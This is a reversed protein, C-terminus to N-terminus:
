HSKSQLDPQGAIKGSLLMGLFEDRSLGRRTKAMSRFMVELRDKNSLIRDGVEALHADTVLGLAFCVVDGAKVRRGERNKNARVLLSELKSLCEGNLRVPM